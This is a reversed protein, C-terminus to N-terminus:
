GGCGAEERHSLTAPAVGFDDELAVGLQHCMGGMMAFHHVTHSVLFQLERGLTSPQWDADDTGCNMKVLLDRPAQRMLLAELESRVRLVEEIASATSSELDEQRARCDYDVKAKDLGALLSIYHDLCHRLHQGLTSGYFTEVAEGYDGDAVQVLLREAQDLFHLNARILKEMAMKNFCSLRM